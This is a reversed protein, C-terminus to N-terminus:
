SERCSRGSTKRRVPNVAPNVSGHRWPRSAVLAQNRWCRIIWASIMRDLVTSLETCSETNVYSVNGLTPQATRSTGASEAKTDTPEPDSWWVLVKLQVKGGLLTRSGLRPYISSFSSHRRHANQPKLDNKQPSPCLSILHHPQQVRRGQRAYGQRRILM